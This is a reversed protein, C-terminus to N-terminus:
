VRELFRNQELAIPITAACASLNGILLLALVVGSSFLSDSFSKRRFLFILLAIAIPFVCLGLLPPVRHASNHWWYLTSRDGLPLALWNYLLYAISLSCGIVTLCILIARLLQSKGRFDLM